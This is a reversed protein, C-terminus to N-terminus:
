RKRKLSQGPMRRETKVDFITGDWDLLYDKSTRDSYYMPGRIKGNKGKKKREYYVFGAVDGTKDSKIYIEASKHGNMLYSFAKYRAEIIDNAYGIDHNYTQIRYTTMLIM